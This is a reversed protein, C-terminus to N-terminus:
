QRQLGATGETDRKLNPRVAEDQVGCKPRSDGLEVPPVKVWSTVLKVPAGASPSLYVCIWPARASEGESHAAIRACIKM